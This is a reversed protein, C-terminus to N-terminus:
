CSEGVGDRAILPQGSSAMVRVRDLDLSRNPNAYIYGSVGACISSAVTTAAANNGLRTIVTVTSGDVEIENVSPWWSTGTFNDRLYQEVGAAREDPTSTPDPDASASEGAAGCAAIVMLVVLLCLFRM